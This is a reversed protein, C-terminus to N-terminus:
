VENMEEPSTDHGLSDYTRSTLKHFPPSRLVESANAGCEYHVHRDDKGHCLLLPLSAARAVAEQSGVIKDMLFRAMPFWGSLGVVASLNGPYPKGNTLKGEVACAASFLAIASVMGFGGVGLKIDSPETSLLKAVHTTSADLSEMDILADESCDPTNFWATYHYGDIPGIRRAPATPCIWKINPIPLAELIQYWNYGTEGREHLWVVTAQHKGKPRVVYTRGFELSAATLFKFNFMYSGKPGDISDYM